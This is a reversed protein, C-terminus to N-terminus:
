FKSHFSHPMLESVKFVDIENANGTIIEGDPMFEEIVQRCIGCPFTKETSSSTIALKIFSHKGESVAKFIACREACVTAGYSINEINCGTYVTGDSCLLAAGVLFHSYPAYANAMAQKAIEMLKENETM